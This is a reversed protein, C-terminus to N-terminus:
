RVADECISNYEAISIEGLLHRIWAAVAIDYAEGLNPLPVYNKRREAAAAKEEYLSKATYYKSSENRKFGVRSKIALAIYDREYAKPPEQSGELWEDLVSNAESYSVDRLTKEWTALTAIPNSSKGNIYERIGPFAILLEDSFQKWETPTM